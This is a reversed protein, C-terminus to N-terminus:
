FNSEEVVRRDPSEYFKYILLSHEISFVYKCIIYYTSVM